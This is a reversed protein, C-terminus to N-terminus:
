HQPQVVALFKSKPHFQRSCKSPPSLPNSLARAGDKLTEWGSTVSGEIPTPKGSYVIRVDFLSQVNLTQPLVIKLKDKERSFQAPTGDVKVSRINLGHFDLSFASLKQTSVIKLRTVADIM